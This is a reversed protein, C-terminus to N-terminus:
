KLIEPDLRFVVISDSVALYVFFEDLIMGAPHMEIPMNALSWSRLAPKSGNLIRYIYFVSSGQPIILYDGNPLSCFHRAFIPDEATALIKLDAKKGHHLNLKYLHTSWDDGKLVTIFEFGNEVKEFQGLMRTEPFEVLDTREGTQLDLYVLHGRHLLILGDQWFAKPNITRALDRDVRLESLMSDLIAVQGHGKGEEYCFVGHEGSLLYVVPRTRIKEPRSSFKDLYFLGKPSGLLFGQKQDTSRVFSTLQGIGLPHTSEHAIFPKREQMTPGPTTDIRTPIATPLMILIERILIAM